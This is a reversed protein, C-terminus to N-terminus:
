QASPLGGHDHVSTRSDANEEKRWLSCFDIWYAHLSDYLRHVRERRILYRGATSLDSWGMREMVSAMTQYGKVQQLDNAHTARLM